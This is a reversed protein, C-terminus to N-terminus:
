TIDRPERANNDIARYNILSDRWCKHKYVYKYVQRAILSGHGAEFKDVSTKNTKIKSIIM